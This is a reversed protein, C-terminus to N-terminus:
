GRFRFDADFDIERRAKETSLNVYREPLTRTITVIAMVTGAVPALATRTRFDLLSPRISKRSSAPNDPLLSAGSAFSTDRASM